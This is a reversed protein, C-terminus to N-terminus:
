GNASTYRFHDLVTEFLKAHPMPEGAQQLLRLQEFRRRNSPDALFPDLAWVAM